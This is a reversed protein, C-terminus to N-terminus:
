LKKTSKPQFKAAIAAFEKILQDDEIDLDALGVRIAIKGIREAAQSELKALEDKIRSLESLKETRRESLTKRAM